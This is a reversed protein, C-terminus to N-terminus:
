VNKGNQIICGCCARKRSDGVVTKDARRSEVKFTGGNPLAKKLVKYAADAIQDIDKEVSIVPSLSYIGFVQKLRAIALPADATEVWLRGWSSHVQTGPVGRLQARANQALRKIFQSKNKGKLGLEGYRILLLENGEAIKM